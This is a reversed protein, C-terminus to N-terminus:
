CTPSLAEDPSYRLLEANNHCNLKQMIRIKHTSVTKPSLALERAIGTITKGVHLMRLVQAERETLQERVSDVPVRVDFVIKEALDPDIYKHGGAVKRIADALTDAGRGKTIYGAAGTQLARAAFQAEAHMSLILIPLLPREARIRKILDIGSLGPMSIDLLVVDIDQRRLASLVEGGSAAEGAIVVDRMGSLVMKLGERVIFHDDAILLRIM